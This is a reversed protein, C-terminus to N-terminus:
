SRVSRQDSKDGTGGYNVVMHRQLFDNIITIIIEFKRHEMYLSDSYFSIHVRSTPKYM